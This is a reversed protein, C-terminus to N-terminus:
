VEEGYDIKQKYELKLSRKLKIDASILAWREMHNRDTNFDRKGYLIRIFSYPQLRQYNYVKDDTDTDGTLFASDVLTVRDVVM